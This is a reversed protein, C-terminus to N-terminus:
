PESGSPQFSSSRGTAAHGILLKCTLDVQYLSYSSIPNMQPIDQNSGGTGLKSNIREAHGYRVTAIVHESFGYALAVCVGQMNERGEFFDSDLLNPDLSYQEIHQWYTRLEWAHKASSSGYVLGQTPGFTQGASGVGFGLQYAMVDRTQPSFPSKKVTSTASNNLIATYASAADEARQKGELNYAVDGFLRANLRDVKFDVEFPVDVVLLHNLGVQNMPFGLSGYGVLGQSTSSSSQYGSAGVATSPDLLHDGEGVYPDGFYPSVGSTATSRHLGTYTYLTGAIKASTNTSFQYKLGAQWAFQFINDTNGTTIGLGEDSSNPNQDQYLFQGFNAFLQADGVSHSFREAAGEPNLNSNWILTTAYLPNPMKGVTLDVWGPRWGLYAQGINVGATSKGFPGQYPPSSSSTTGMTVWSSRPNSSPELRFGYYFSDFLEGRLGVRVSYRFRQLDIAAGSSDEALRDEYRVRVDGFLEVHKTGESIKWKSALRSPNSVNNTRNFEAEAKIKEVEQQTVFGKQIFLDLVPDLAGGDSDACFGPAAVGLAATALVGMM